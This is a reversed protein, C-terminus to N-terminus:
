DEESSTQIIESPRTICQAYDEKGLWKICGKATCKCKKVVAGHRV